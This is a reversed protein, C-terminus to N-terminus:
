DGEVILGSGQVLCHELMKRIRFLLASRSKDDEIISVISKIHVAYLVSTGYLDVELGTAVQLKSFVHELADSEEDNAAYLLKKRGGAENFSIAM